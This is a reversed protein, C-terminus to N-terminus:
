GEVRARTLRQELTVGDEVVQIRVPLNGRGPAIWVTVRKDGSDSVIRQYRLTEIAGLPTDLTGGPQRAYRYDNLDRGSVVQLAYDAPLRPAFMFQYVQSLQDQAGTKLEPVQWSQGKYSYAISHRAWDLRAVARKEPADSRAHTFQAPKLGQATVTGTSELRISGPWLLKLPGSAHMESTLTYRRDQRTYTDTVEGLKQGNRYLAYVLTMQSPVAWVPLSMTLAAFLLLLRSM